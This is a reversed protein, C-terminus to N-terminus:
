YTYEFTEDGSVSKTLYNDSNYTNVYTTTGEIVEGSKEIIKTINNPTNAEKDFIESELLLTYGLIGKFPNNKTDYEIINVSDGFEAKVINGKSDLTLVSSWDQEEEQTSLNLIFTAVSITGNSNYTYTKRKTSSDGSDVKLSSKLKNNEYTFTTTQTYTEGEYSETYVAKTILDGTYTFIIQDGGDYTLSVIKNGDYSYTVTNNEEPHSAYTYKETKPLLIKEDTTDDSSCSSLVLMLSSFLCLIKKM